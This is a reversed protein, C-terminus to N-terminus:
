NRAPASGSEIVYSFRIEEEGSGYLVANQSPSRALEEFSADMDFQYHAALSELMSFYYGNRRDWGKIAGSALCLSPFAVVRAPDFVGDHRPGDCSPMGWRRTSPSCARSWSASRTAACRVPSSARQLSARGSDGALGHTPVPADMDVVLARGDALGLAAEFSEALRQRLQDRAAIDDDGRVKVRDIVVDINHKETKKLKPLDDYEYAQGGVRFRVYGRAQM